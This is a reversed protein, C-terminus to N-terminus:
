TGANESEDPDLRLVRVGLGSFRGRTERDFRMRDSLNSATSIKRGKSM